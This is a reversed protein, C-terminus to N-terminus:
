RKRTKMLVYGAGAATMVLLGSGLPAGFNDNTLGGSVEPAGEDRGAYDGSSNSFFGDTGGGQGFSKVPMLLGVAIMTSMILAEINLRSRKM